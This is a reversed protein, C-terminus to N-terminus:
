WPSFFCARKTGALTEQGITQDAKSAPCYDGKKTIEM